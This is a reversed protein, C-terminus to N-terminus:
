RERKAPPIPEDEWHFFSCGKRDRHLACAYFKRPERNAYYREFVLTPGTFLTTSWYNCVFMVLDQVSEPEM